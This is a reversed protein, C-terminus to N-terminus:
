VQQNTRFKHALNALKAESREDGICLAIDNAKM